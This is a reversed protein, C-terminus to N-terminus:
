QSLEKDRRLSAEFARQIVEAFNENELSHIGEITTGGPSCVKQILTEASDSSSLLLKASGKTMAAAVSYALEADLGAQIAAKALSDIYLFTYAPACGGLVGFIHIKEEPVYFASGFTECCAQVFQLQEETTNRNGCFASVAAKVQANLNPFIRAIAIHPAFFSGIYETTKGAAISLLFINRRNVIESLEPLLTPLIQPKVALFLADCDCLIEEQTSATVGIKECFQELMERSIDTVLIEKKVVLTSDALGQIIPRAMNGCGIFGIKM